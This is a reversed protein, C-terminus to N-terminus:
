LLKLRITEDSKIIRHKPKKDKIKIIHTYSEIGPQKQIELIYSTGNPNQSLKKEYDIEVKVESLPPVEVFFGISKINKDKYEKVDIRSQLVQDNIRITINEAEIPLLVRLFNEYLGGWFDKYNPREEPSNNVYSIKLKEKLKDKDLYIEQEVKRKVYGNAKNSGLNTDVIYIYDTIQKENDQYKRKLAGTWDELPPYEQLAPDNFNLLIQKEDLNKKIVKILQVAQKANCNKLKFILQKTLSSLFDKKQTSGPFFDKEVQKQTILIFNDATIQQNYDPLDIPGVIELLDKIFLLNIAILGNNKEEGGKEFFWSIQESALPFDPEWNSDRLKWWGQQFATQIPWPPDVHAKLQGDPVYIDQVKIHLLGANVFKLKSYSGMFGGTPRLEWNNQLLVFYTKSGNVGVLDPLFQNFQNITKFYKTKKQWSTFNKEFNEPHNNVIDMVLNQGVKALSFFYIGAFFLIFIFVFVPTLSYFLKKNKKFLSKLKKYNM